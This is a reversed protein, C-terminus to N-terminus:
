ANQVQDQPSGAQLTNDIEANLLDTAESLKTELTAMNKKLLVLQTAVDLCHMSILQIEDLGQFSSKLTGLRTNIEHAAQRVASEEEALIMLPFVRGGITVTVSLKEQVQM